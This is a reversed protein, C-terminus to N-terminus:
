FMIYWVYIILTICLPHVTVYLYSYRYVVFMSRYTNLLNQKVNHFTYGFSCDLLTWCIYKLSDLALASFTKFVSLFNASIITYPMTHLAVLPLSMPQQQQLSPAEFFGLYLCVWQRWSEQIINYTVNRQNNLSNRDILVSRWSTAKFKVDPHCLTLYFSSFTLCFCLWHCRTAKHNVM